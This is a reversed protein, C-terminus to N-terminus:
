GSAVAAMGDVAAPPEAAFMQRTVMGHYKGRARMLSEHTGTEIVRGQDLVIIEDARQVTALRHAIVLISCESALADLVKSVLHETDADLNSTAEDLILLDPEALLARAIALRQQQGGSLRTGREGVVTAYGEPLEVIFDHAEARRAASELEADSADPRVLRLNAAVTDDFLFTDQTVVSVRRRWDVLKLEAIDVGDVAIRGAQPRYLRTILGVLTTKGAGSAGVLAIMRRTPIDFSVTELAAGDSLAYRFSVGEISVKRHHGAYPRRGDPEENGQAKQIFDFIAQTAPLTSALGLRLRNLTQVPSIVRNLVFLFLLIVPIRNAIGDLLYTSAFLMVAIIVAIISQFLPDILSQLHNNRRENSMYRAVSEDVKAAHREVGAVLRLLKAGSLGGFITRNMEILAAIRREGVEVMRRTLPLRVFQVALFLAAGALLTLQWALTLCIGVYLALMVASGLATATQSCFFAAQSSVGMAYSLLNTPGASQVREFDLRHVLRVMTTKLKQDITITFLQALMTMLYSFASRLLALVALMVAVVKIEGAASWGAFFGAIRDVLPVSAFANANHNIADLLPVLAAIGLGETVAGGVTAVALAIVLWKHAAMLRLVWAVAPWNVSPLRVGLVGLLAAAGRKVGFGAEAM